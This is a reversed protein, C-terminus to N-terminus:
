LGPVTDLSRRLEDTEVHTYVDMTLTITSHRALKKADSPSVGARALSTIFTHRLSHFDLVRGHEDVYPISACKLDRRLISAMMGHKAWKGPWLTGNRNSLWERFPDILSVHLPLVDERRRKSYCAQVTVTRRELDISNTTLSALESARLGTFIALTYLMARDHPKLRWDRGRITHSSSRTSDILLQPQQGVLARRQRKKGIRGNLMKLSRLVDETTRGETWLWRSFSKVSRAYHNSTSVGIPKQRMGPRTSPPGQERFKALTRSIRNVDLDAITEAGIAKVIATLRAMTNLIHVAGNERSKLHHKYDALHEQLPRLREKDKSGIGLARERDAESQLRRLMAESTGREDTLPIQQSRGDCTKLTGYFKKSEITRKIAGETGSPVLQKGAYWRVTKKKWMTVEREKEKPRSATATPTKRNM